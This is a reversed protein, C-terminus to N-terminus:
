LKPIRGRLSVCFMVAVDGVFPSVMSSLRVSRAGEVQGLAALEKYGGGDGDAVGTLPSCPDRVSACGLVTTGVPIYRM